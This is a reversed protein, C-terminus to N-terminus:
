WGVLLSYRCFSAFVALKPGSVGPATPVNAFLWHVSFPLLVVAEPDPGVSVSFRDTLADVLKRPVM